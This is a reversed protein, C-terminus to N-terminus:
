SRARIPRLNASYRISRIAASNFTGQGSRRCSREPSHQNVPASDNMPIPKSRFALKQWRHISPYPDLFKFINSVNLAKVTVIDPSRLIFALTVPKADHRSSLLTNKGYRSNTPSVQTEYRILHRLTRASAPSYENLLILHSCM